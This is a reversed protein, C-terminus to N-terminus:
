VILYQKWFSFIICSVSMGTFVWHCPKTLKRIKAKDSKWLVLAVVHELALGGDVGIIPMTNLVGCCLSVQASFLCISSVLLLKKPLINQIGLCIAALLFNMLVGASIVKLQNRNQYYTYIILVHSFIYLVSDRLAGPPYGKWRIM